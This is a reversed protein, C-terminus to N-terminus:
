FDTRAMEARLPTEMGYDVVSLFIQYKEGDNLMEAVWFRQSLDQIEKITCIDEFFASCEKEDNLSLIAKWLNEIEESHIKNM